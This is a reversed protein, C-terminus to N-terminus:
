SDERTGEERAAKREAERIARGEAVAEEFYPDDAFMGVSDRWSRLRRGPPEPLITVTMGSELKLVSELSRGNIILSSDRPPVGAERLLDALSAGEPLTFVQM